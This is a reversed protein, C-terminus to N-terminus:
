QLLLDLVAPQNTTACDTNDSKTGIPKELYGRRGDRIILHTVGDAPLDLIKDVIGQVFGNDINKLHPRVARSLSGSVNINHNGSLRKHPLLDFQHTM